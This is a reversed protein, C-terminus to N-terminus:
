NFDKGKTLVVANDDIVAVTHEFHASFKRDRSVVTWGDELLEVEHTGINIMPEIALVM